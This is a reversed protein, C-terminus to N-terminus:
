AGDNLLQQESDGLVEDDELKILGQEIARTLDRAKPWRGFLKRYRRRPGMNKKKGMEYSTLPEPGPNMELVQFPYSPVTVTSEKFREIGDSGSVMTQRRRNVKADNLLRVVRMPVVVEVGRPITAQYGNANVYVPLNNAGPTSDEQLRIRAYGPKLTNGTGGLEPMTRGDLKRELAEIIDEKTATKPIAVRMHSAYKRLDQISMDRFNPSEIKSM